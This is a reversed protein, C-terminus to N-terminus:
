QEDLRTAVRLATNRPGPNVSIEFGPSVLALTRTASSLEPGGEVEAFSRLLQEIPISYLRSKKRHSQEHTESRQAGTNM